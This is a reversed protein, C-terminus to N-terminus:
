HLISTIEQPSKRSEIMKNIDIILNNPKALTENKSSNDLYNRKMNENLPQDNSSFLHDKKKVNENLPQENETFKHDIVLEIKQKSLEDLDDNSVKFIKSMIIHDMKKNYIVTVIVMFIKSILNFIAGLQALLDQAKM